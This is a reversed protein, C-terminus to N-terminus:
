LTSSPMDAAAKKIFRSVSLHLIYRDLEIQPLSMFRIEAVGLLELDGGRRHLVDGIFLTM